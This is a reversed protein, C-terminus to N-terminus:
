RDPEKCEDCPCFGHQRKKEARTLKDAIRTVEQWAAKNGARIERLERALRALYAGLCNPCFVYMPIESAIESAVPFGMEGLAFEVVIASPTAAERCELLESDGVRIHVAHPPTTIVATAEDSAMPKAEEHLRFNALFVDLRMRGEPQSPCDALLVDGSEQGSVLVLFQSINHQWLEGRQPDGNPM